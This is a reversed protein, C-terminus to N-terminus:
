ALTKASPIIFRTWNNVTSYISPTECFTSVELMYNGCTRLRNPIYAARLVGLPHQHNSWEPVVGIWKSGSFWAEHVGHQWVWLTNTAPYKTSKHMNIRFPLENLALSLSLAYLSCLSLSIFLSLSLSLYMIYYIVMYLKYLLCLLYIYIYICQICISYIRVKLFCTWNRAHM